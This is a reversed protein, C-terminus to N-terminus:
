KTSPESDEKWRVVVETRLVYKRGARVPLEEWALCAPFTLGAGARPTVIVPRDAPFCATEGGAFGDNLHLVVTLRVEGKQDPEAPGRLGPSLRQGADFREVVMPERSRVSECGASIRLREALAIWLDLPASEDVTCRAGPADADAPWPAFGAAESWAIVAACENPSLTRELAFVRARILAM